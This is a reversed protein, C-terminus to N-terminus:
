GETILNSQVDLIATDPGNLVRVPAVCTFTCVAQFVDAAYEGGLSDVDQQSLEVEVMGHADFVPLNAVIIRRLAKRMDVREDANLCWGVITLQVRALWGEGSGWRQDLDLWDDPEVMEGLARQAPTESALHVTVVPFRTGEFAPPAVLVRIAGGDPKFTGRAVEAQLGLRLRDRVVDLVDTSADQYRAQPTASMSAGGAAWATGDWYYPRYHYLTGDQLGRADLVANVPDGAYVLAAQADDHGTFTDTVKRLLRVQRAAAPPELFARLAAGAALPEIRSLM